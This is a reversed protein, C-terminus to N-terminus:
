AVNPPVRSDGANRVLGEPFLCFTMKRNGSATLGEPIAAFGLLPLDSRSGLAHVSWSCIAEALGSCQPLGHLGDIRGVVRGEAPVDTIDGVAVFLGASQSGSPRAFSHLRLIADHRSKSVVMPSSAAGFLRHGCGYFLAPALKGGGSRGYKGANRLFEILFVLAVSESIVLGPTHKAQGCKECFVANPKGYIGAVGAVGFRLLKQRNVMDALLELSGPLRTPEGTDFELGSLDKKVLETAFALYDILALGIRQHVLGPWTSDLEAIRNLSKVYYDRAYLWVEKQLHVARHSEGSRVERAVNTSFEVVQSLIKTYAVLEKLQLEENKLYLSKLADKFFASDESAEAILAYHGEKRSTIITDGLFGPIACQIILIALPDTAPRGHLVSHEEDLVLYLSSRNRTMVDLTLYGIRRRVDPRFM